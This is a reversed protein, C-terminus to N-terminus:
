FTVLMAVQAYHREMPLVRPLAQSIPRKEMIVFVFKRPVPLIIVAVIFDLTVVQAYRPEMPFVFRIAQSIPPYETHVCVRTRLVSTQDM